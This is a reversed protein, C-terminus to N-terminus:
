IGANGEEGAGNNGEEGAGNSGEENSGNYNGGKIIEEIKSNIIEEVEAKTYSDKEPIEDPAAPVPDPVPATQMFENYFKDRNIM